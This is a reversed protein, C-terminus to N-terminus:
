STIKDKSSRHCSLIVDSANASLASFLSSPLLATVADTLALWGTTLPTYFMLLSDKIRFSVGFFVLFESAIDCFKELPSKKQIHSLPIEMATIDAAATTDQIRPLCTTAVDGPSSILTIRQHQRCRIHTSLPILQVLIVGSKKNSLVDCIEVSSM